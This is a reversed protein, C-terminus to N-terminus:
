SLTWNRPRSTAGKDILLLDEWGLEALHGVLCNGVIGAGIVAITARAPLAERTSGAVSSISDEM